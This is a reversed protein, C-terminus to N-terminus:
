HEYPWWFPKERSKQWKAFARKESIYYNRYAQVVDESKYSDPMCQPFASIVANSLTPRHKYLWNVVSISKHHHEYRFVFEDALGVAHTLLWNWNSISQNVWLTCPHKKHTLRYPAVGAPYASCLLQCSEILMKNIHLDCQYQAALIPDSDLVFINM